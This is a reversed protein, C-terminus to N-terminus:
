KKLHHTSNKIQILDYTDMKGKISTNKIKNLYDMRVGFGHLYEGM